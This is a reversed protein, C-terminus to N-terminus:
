MSLHSFAKSDLNFVDSIPFHRGSSASSPLQFIRAAPLLLTAEQRKRSQAEQIIQAKDESRLLVVCFFFVRSSFCLSKLYVPQPRDGSVWVLKESASEKGPGPAPGAKRISTTLKYSESGQM